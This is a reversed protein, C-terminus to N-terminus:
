SWKLKALTAFKEKNRRFKIAVKSPTSWDGNVETRWAWDWDWGQRGVNERLWDGYHIAPSVTFLGRLKIPRTPKDLVIMTGPMFRWWLQRYWIVPYTRGWSYDLMLEDNSTRYWSDNTRAM